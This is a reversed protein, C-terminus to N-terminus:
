GLFMTVKIYDISFTPKVTMTVRAIGRIEEERTATVDLEYAVLMEDDIMGALFGSIAGKMAKRVRDNNLLGIFPGAASRVGYKAYDVIRRTTIQKFAGDDTTIGKVVRVGNRVELALVRAQVLQELEPPSLRPDVTEIGAVVKNTLSVHPARASLMGAVIAAAYSGPLTVKQAEAKGVPVDMVQVGPGVFILRDSAVQHAAFSAATTGEGGLVGIRDRKMRDTSANQVHELLENAIGEGQGAAVIIHAEEALLLELGAAYDLDGADAGDTGPTGSAFLRFTTPSAFSDPLAAPTTGAGIDGRALSSGGANNVPNLLQALHRGDAVVYTETVSGWRLTVQRADGQPVVFTASMRDGAAVAADAASFFVHGTAADIAAHGTTAPAAVGPELTLVQTTGSSARFLRIRNRPDGVTVPHGLGFGAPPAGAFTVRFDSVVAPGAAATVNVEIDNGWTGPSSAELVIATGGGVAALPLSAEAPTGAAVRVAWIRSAGNAYALQLARMLTLPNDANVPDAFPDPGGFIERAQGASALLTAKGVPGKRATGVIGVTGVTIQGASILGEPRVEIYVGPLIMESM